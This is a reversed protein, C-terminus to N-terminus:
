SREGEKETVKWLKKWAFAKRGRLNKKKKRIDGELYDEGWGNRRL